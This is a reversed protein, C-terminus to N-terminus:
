VCGLGGFEIIEGLSDAGADVATDLGHFLALRGTMGAAHLMRVLLRQQDVVVRLSQGSRAALLQAKALVHIGAAGFFDVRSIDVIVAGSGTVFATEVADAFRYGTRLDLEGGLLVVVAERLPVVDIWFFERGGPEALDDRALEGAPCSLGTGDDATFGRLKDDM